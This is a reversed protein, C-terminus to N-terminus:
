LGFSILVLLHFLLQTMKLQHIHFAYDRLGDIDKSPNEAFNRLVSAQVKGAHVEMQKLTQFYVEAHMKMGTLM